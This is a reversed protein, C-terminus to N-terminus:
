TWRSQQKSTSRGDETIEQTIAPVVKIANEESGLAEATAVSNDDLARQAEAVGLALKTVMEPLPVDLLEQGVSM